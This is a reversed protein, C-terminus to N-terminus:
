CGSVFMQSFMEKAIKLVIQDPFLIVAHSNCYDRLNVISM